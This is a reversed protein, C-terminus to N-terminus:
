EMLYFTGEVIKDLGEPTIKYHLEKCYFKKNAILFVSKPDYVGTTVFRFVYETKTDVQINGTYLTNYLGFEGRLALTFKDNAVKALKRDQAARNYHIFYPQIISQPINMKDLVPQPVEQNQYYSSYLYPRPGLYIAVFIHSDETEEKTVGNEIEQYIYEQTETSAVNNVVPTAATIWGDYYKSGGFDARQLRTNKAYIEAPVIKLECDNDSDEDEIGKLTDIIELTVYSTAGQVLAFVYDLNTSQDHIVTYPNDKIFMKIQAFNAVNVTTSKDLIEQDVNQYSYWRGSPLNYAVNNYTVYLSETQDYKKEVEDILQDNDIQIVENDKYFDAVNLIQVTRNIQNVFFLVNFSREIETLFEDVRWKPLIKNLDTTNVGNVVILRRAVENDLLVNETITYGLATIVKDVYYLLFPQAVLLTGEVYNYGNRTDWNLENYLIDNKATYEGGSISSDYDGKEKVVPCVVYNTDPYFKGLTVKAMDTTLPPINGLDLERLTRKGASLYNLESNGAVIQIKAINDDISLIVETGKIVQRAGCVLVANRNTPRKSVDARHMSQYLKANISINLNIDLDYTYEGNKTFFPNQGYYDLEFDEPLAVEEGNIFLRTM